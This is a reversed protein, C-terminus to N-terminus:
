AGILSYQTFVGPSNNPVTLRGSAVASISINVAIQMEFKFDYAGDEFNIIDTVILYIITGSYVARVNEGKAITCNVELANGDVTSVSDNFTLKLALYETYRELGEIYEHDATDLTPDLTPAQVRTYKEDWVELKQADTYDAFDTASVEWGVGYHNNTTTRHPADLVATFNSDGQYSVTFAENMNSDLINFNVDSTLHYIPFDYDTNKWGVLLIFDNEFVSNGTIEAWAYPVDRLDISIDDADTGTVEREFNTLTYIDDMDDFTASSKPIWIDMEVFNSVDELDPHSRVTYTSATKEPDPTTTTGGLDFGSLSLTGTGFLLSLVIVAISGGLILRKHTKKV